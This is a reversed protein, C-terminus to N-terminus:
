WSVNFLDGSDHIPNDWKVWPWYWQHLKWPPLNFAPLYAYGYLGFEGQLADLDNNCRTVKNVTDLEFTVVDYMLDLHGYFGGGCVELDVMAKANVWVNLSCVVNTYVLNDAPKLHAIVGFGAEGALAAEVTVPIPGIFFTYSYEKSFPYVFQEEHTEDVEDMTKGGADYGYGYVEEGFLLLKATASLGGTKLGVFVDGTVAEGKAGLITVGLIAKSHYGYLFGLNSSTTFYASFLSPDGMPSSDTPATTAGSPFGLQKYPAFQDPPAVIKVETTGGGTYSIAVKSSSDQDVYVAAAYSGVAASAPFQFSVIATSKAAPITVPVVGVISGSQAETIKLLGTVPNAPASSLEWRLAFAGGAATASPKLIAKFEGDLTTRSTANGGGAQDTFILLKGKSLVAQSGGPGTKKRGGTRFKERAAQASRKFTDEFAARRVQAKEEVAKKLEVETTTALIRATLGGPVSVSESPSHLTSSSLSQQQTRNAALVTDLPTLLRGAVIPRHLSKIATAQNVRMPENLVPDSFPTAQKIRQHPLVKQTEEAPVGKTQRLSRGNKVLSAEIQNIKEYYEGAKMTKGNPLTVPSDATFPQGRSTTTKGTEPDLLEFKQFTVVQGSPKIATLKKQEPLKVQPLTRLHTGANFARHIEKAQIGAPNVTSSNIHSASLDQGAKTTAKTEGLAQPTASRQPHLTQKVSSPNSATDPPASRRPLPTPKISATPPATIAPATRQPLPTTRATSPNAPVRAQDRRHAPTVGPTASPTQGAADGAPWAFMGLVLLLVYRKMISKRKM